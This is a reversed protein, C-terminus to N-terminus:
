SELLRIYWVSKPDTTQSQPMEQDYESAKKGNENNGDKWFTKELTSRSDWYAITYFM